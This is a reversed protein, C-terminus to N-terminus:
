GQSLPIRLILGDLEDSMKLQCCLRSHETPGQVGELMFAEDSSRTPLCAHWRPDVYVHCTGCSCAGGCEGDIGPVMNDVAIQMLSRGTEGDVLHEANSSDIFMVKAM